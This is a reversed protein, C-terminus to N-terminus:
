PSTNTLINDLSDWLKILQAAFYSNISIRCYKFLMPQLKLTLTFSYAGRWVAHLNPLLADIFKRNPSHVISLYAKPNSGCNIPWAPVWAWWKQACSPLRSMSLSSMSYYCRLGVATSPWPSLKTCWTQEDDLVLTSCGPPWITSILMKCYNNKFHGL